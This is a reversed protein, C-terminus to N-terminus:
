RVGTLSMLDTVGIDQPSVFGEGHETGILRGMDEARYRISNFFGKSSIVTKPEKSNPDYFQSAHAKISEMKQDMFGSVDLIITPKINQFQIYQLVLSPRYAEQVKGHEDHTEIKRLGALFCAVRVLEAGKSHDPHRDTPANTLVMEPKYKRIAAIVKLQHEEDNLFFGDRFGLNERVQVGLAKAAAKAEKLRIEPTGRTGLDGQTLDIIGIKNGLSAQKALTGGVSIEVDDPHAGFALIDLKM